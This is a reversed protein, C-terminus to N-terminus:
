KIANVFDLSNAGKDTAKETTREALKEAMYRGWRSASLKLLSVKFTGLKLNEGAGIMDQAHAGDVVASWVEKM